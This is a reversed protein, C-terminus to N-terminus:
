EEVAGSTGVPKVYVLRNLVVYSIPSLYLVNFLQALYVNVGWGTMFQLGADSIIYISVFTLLFGIFQRKGLNEFVGIGYSLYNFIAGVGVNILLSFRVNGNSLYFATSFVAMGIVTNLMGVFLFRFIKSLVVPRWM